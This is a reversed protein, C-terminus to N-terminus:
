RTRLLAFLKLSTPVLAVPADGLSNFVARAAAMWEAAAPRATTAPGALARRVEETATLSAAAASLRLERAIAATSTRPRAILMADRLRHAVEAEGAAAIARWIYSDTLPVSRCTLADGFDMAFSTPGVNDPWRIAAEFERELWPALQALTTTAPASGSSAAARWQAELAGWGEADAEVAAALVSSCAAGYGGACRDTGARPAWQGDGGLAFSSEGDDPTLHVPGTAIAAAAPGTAVAAAATTTRPEAWVARMRQVLKWNLGATSMAVPGFQEATRRDTLTAMNYHAVLTSAPLTVDILPAGNAPQARMPALYCMSQLPHYAARLATDAPVDAETLPRVGLARGRADAALDPMGACAAAGLFLETAVAGHDAATYASRIEDATARSGLEAGVQAAAEVAAAAAVTTAEAAAAARRPASRLEDSYSSSYGRSARELVTPAMLVAAWDRMRGELAELWDAAVATAALTTMMAAAAEALGTKAEALGAVADSWRRSDARVGESGVRTAHAELLQVWHLLAERWPVLFAHAM